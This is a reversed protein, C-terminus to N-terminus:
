SRVCSCALAAAHGVILSFWYVFLSPQTSSAVCAKANCGRASKALATSIPPANADQQVLQQAALRRKGARGVLNGVIENGIGGLHRIKGGVNRMMRAVQDSPQKTPAFAAAAARWQCARAMETPTVSPAPVHIQSQPRANLPCLCNLYMRAHVPM